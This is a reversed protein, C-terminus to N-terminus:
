HFSSSTSPTVDCPTVNGMGVVHQFATPPTRDVHGAVLTSKSSTRSLITLGALGHHAVALVLPGSRAWQRLWFLATASSPLELM